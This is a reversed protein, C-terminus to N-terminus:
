KRSHSSLRRAATEAALKEARANRRATKQSAVLISVLEDAEKILASAESADGLGAGALAELWGLSEDAEELAVGLKAIFERRSRGRCAARYNSDTSGAADILQPVIRRAAPHDPLLEAFRIVRLLFAQIREQLAVARPNM